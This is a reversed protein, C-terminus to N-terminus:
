MKEFKAFELHASSAFKGGADNASNAFKCSTGIVGNGSIKLSQLSMMPLNAV